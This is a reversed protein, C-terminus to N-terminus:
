WPELDTGPGLSRDDRVHGPRQLDARRALRSQRRWYTLLGILVLVAGWVIVFAMGFYWPLHHALPQTALTM